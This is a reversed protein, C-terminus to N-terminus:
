NITEEFAGLVTLRGIEKHRREKVEKWMDVGDPRQSFVQDIVQQIIQEITRIEMLKNELVDEQTIRPTLAITTQLGKKLSPLTKLIAKGTSNLLGVFDNVEFAGEIIEVDKSLLKCREIIKRQQTLEKM